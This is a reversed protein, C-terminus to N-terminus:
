SGWNERDAFVLLLGNAGTYILDGNHWYEKNHIHRLSAGVAYNSIPDM